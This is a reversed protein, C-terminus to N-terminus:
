DIEWGDALIDEFSDYKIHKGNTNEQWLGLHVLSGTWDILFGFELEKKDAFAQMKEADECLTPSAVGEDVVKDMLALAEKSGRRLPLYPTKAWTTPDNMMQLDTEATM